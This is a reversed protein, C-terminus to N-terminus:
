ASTSRRAESERYEGVHLNLKKQKIRHSKDKSAYMSDKRGWMAQAGALHQWIIVQLDMTAVPKCDFELFFGIPYM